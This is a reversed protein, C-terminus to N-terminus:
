SCNWKSTKGEVPVGVLVGPVPNLIETPLGALKAKPDVGVVVALGSPLVSGSFDVGVIEGGLNM